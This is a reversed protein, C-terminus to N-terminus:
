NLLGGVPGSYPKLTVKGDDELLWVRRYPYYRLVEEDRGGPMARAWVTWSNDIDADNYVWERNLDHHPGYRVFVLHRGPEGKLRGLVLDRGAIFDRKDYLFHTRSDFWRTIDLLAVGGLLIVAAWRRAAGPRFRLVVARVSAAVIVFVLATGPAAYHPLITCEVALGAYFVILLMMALRLRRKRWLSPLAFLVCATLVPGVFFFDLHVIDMGHVSLVYERESRKMYGDWDVWAARIAEHNYQPAPRPHNSWLFASWLSYQAEYAQYPLLLADGTVRYNYYGMWLAIPMLVGLLPLAVRRALPWPRDHGGRVLVIFRAMLVAICAAGLVAGEWPRSNALVALGAGLALAAGPRGHRLLRPLAGIVLAGGIATVSGGWYSESWYSCAGIRMVALMAGAFAWIPPLWGELAWCILACMVATALLVGAWPQGFVSQGLALTLGMAPPYKSAYTPHSLEHVTEFHIWLPHTPNTLRGHAFTQGALLYSFEDQIGPQPAPILPLLLLRAILAVAGAVLASAGRRLTLFAIAKEILM